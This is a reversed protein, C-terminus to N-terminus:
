FSSRAEYDIGVNQRENHFRRIQLKLAVRILGGLIIHVHAVVKSALGKRDLRNALETLLADVTTRRDLDDVVETPGADGVLSAGVRSYVCRVFRSVHFLEGRHEVQAKVLLETEGIVGQERAAFSLSREGDGARFAHSNSFCQRLVDIQGVGDLLLHETQHNVEAFGFRVLFQLNCSEAKRIIERKVQLLSSSIMLLPLVFYSSIKRLGLSPRM